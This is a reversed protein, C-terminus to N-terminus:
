FTNDAQKVVHLCDACVLSEPHRPLVVARLRRLKKERHAHQVHNLVNEAVGFLAFIALVILWLGEVLYLV